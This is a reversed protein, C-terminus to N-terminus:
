QGSARAVTEECHLLCLHAPLVEIYAAQEEVGRAAMCHHAELCSVVPLCMVHVPTSPPPLLVRCCPRRRPLQQPRNCRRLRANPTNEGQQRMGCRGTSLEAPLQCYSRTFQAFELSHTAVASPKCMCASAGFGEALGWGRRPGVRGREEAGGVSGACPHVFPVHALWASPCQPSLVPSACAALPADPPSM